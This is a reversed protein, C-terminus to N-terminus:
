SKTIVGVAREERIKWIFVYLFFNDSSWKIECVLTDLWTEKLTTCCVHFIRLNACIYLSHDCACLVFRVYIHTSSTVSAKWALAINRRHRVMPSHERSCLAELANQEREREKRKKKGRTALVAYSPISHRQSPTERKWGTYLVNYPISGFLKGLGRM